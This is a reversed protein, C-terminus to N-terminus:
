ITGGPSVLIDEACALCLQEAPASCMECLGTPALESSAMSPHLVCLARTPNLFYMPAGDPGIVRWPCDIPTYEDAFQNLSYGFRELTSIAVSHDTM